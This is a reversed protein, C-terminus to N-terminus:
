KQEDSIYSSGTYLEGTHDNSGENNIIPKHCTVPMKTKENQSSNKVEFIPFILDNSHAM